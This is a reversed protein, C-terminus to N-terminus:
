IGWVYISRSTSVTETWKGATYSVYDGIHMANENYNEEDPNNIGDYLEAITKGEGETKKYLESYEIVHNGEKTIFSTDGPEGDKVYDKGDLIGKIIDDSLKASGGNKQQEIQWAVIDVKAQEMASAKQTVEKAAEAKSIIGNDGLILNISIGALIILVIITIVLAILTIGATSDKDIVKQNQNLNISKSKELFSKKDKLNM